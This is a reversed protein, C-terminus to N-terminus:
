AKYNPKISEVIIQLTQLTSNFDDDYNFGSMEVQFLNDFKNFYFISRNNIFGGDNSNYYISDVSINGFTVEGNSLITTNTRNKINSVVASFNYDSPKLKHGIAVYGLDPNYIQVYSNETRTVEYNQPLSFIYEDFSVSASGVVDSFDVIVYLNVVCVLIICIIIYYNKHM